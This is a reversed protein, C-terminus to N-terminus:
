DEIKLFYSYDGFDVIKGDNSSTITEYPTTRYKGKSNNKFNFIASNLSKEDSFEGFSHIKEGDFGKTLYLKM